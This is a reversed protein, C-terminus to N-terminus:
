RRNLITLKIVMHSKDVIEIDYINIKDEEHKREFFVDTYVSLDIYIEEFMKVAIFDFMDKISSSEKNLKILLENYGTDGIITNELINKSLRSYTILGVILVRYFIDRYKFYNSEVSPLHAINIKLEVRKV